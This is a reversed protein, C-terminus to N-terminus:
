RRDSGALANAVPSALSAAGGGANYFQALQGQRVGRQLLAQVIADRNGGTAVSLRALERAIQDAKEDAGNRLLMNAVKQVGRLSAGTLTTDTPVKAGEATKDLMEKFGLTAATESNGIVKRATGEMRREADLVSLIRDARDQGFITRLKDRNWDGENKLVQNLKAVDNANQGVIRDLEARTGQQLRLAAGSPGVLTGQPNAADTLEQVAEVPRPATRGTDLMQSGRQLAERQRALEAYQADVNKIGPVARALEADVAQRATTLQRVVQPNTEGAMLGDIAQRTQFLASPNPDLHNTGPINLMGRVRNVAQQAPGRLDVALTDLTNALNTTDVRSANRFLDGYAPGLAEQGQAIGSEVRSPIPAPGLETDLTGRIRTNKAADRAALAEVVTERSGPRAAAARAIQGWEPSVDALMGNPGLGQLEARQAAVRQPDSLLQEIYSRTRSALPSLADSASNRVRDLAQGAGGVVAPIASGLALGFLGNLGAGKITETSPINSSQGIGSAIGQTSGAIGGRVMAQPLTKGGLGLLTQFVSSGAAAPAAALTSAVAGGIKAGTSLVPRDEDFTRARAQEMALNDAYSGNGMLSAAGAAARPIFPGLLPIGQATSGAVDAATNLGGGREREFRALADAQSQEVPAKGVGRTLYNKGDSGHITVGAPPEPQVYAAARLEDDSMKSVDRQALTQRAYLAKLDDDSLKSLDTV